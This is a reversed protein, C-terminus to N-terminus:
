SKPRTNWRPRACRYVWQPLGLGLVQDANFFNVGLAFGAENIGMVPFSLLPWTAMIHPLDGGTPHYHCVLPRRLGYRDSWDSNKGIIATGDASASRTAVFTTTGSGLVGLVGRWGDAGSVGLGDAMGRVEEYYGSREYRSGTTMWFRPLSRDAIKALTGFGSILRNWDALQLEYVDRAVPGLLEVQQRGMERYSGYLHLVILDGIDERRPRQTAQPARSTVPDGATHEQM